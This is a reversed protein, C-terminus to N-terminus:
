QRMAICEIEILSDKPLCAVEVASRAPKHAGFNEAYVVNMAVFDNMDKLFVTTKVINDLTLGAAQLVANINKFVQESQESINSGTVLM